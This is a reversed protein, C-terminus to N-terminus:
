SLSGFLGNNYDEYAQNIEDRTNMVFPGFAAFPERFPTAHGFLIISDTNAVVNIEEDDNGFRALQHMAAERGNVTLAGKVVYFLINKEKPVSFHVTGGAEFDMRALDIDYLPDVPGKITDWNGAVAHIVVKGRDLEVTPIDEKQLGVYRPEIMKHKAPLNVWLQLIELPGGNAKFQESSIEAHVLGKGATM